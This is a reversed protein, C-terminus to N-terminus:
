QEQQRQINITSVSADIFLEIRESAQNYGTTQYENRGTTDEVQRWTSDLNLAGLINTSLHCGLKSPLIVNVTAVGAELRAQVAGKRLGGTLDLRATAGGIKVFLAQFNLNALGVADLTTAVGATLNANCSTPNQFELFDLTFSGASMELDLEKLPLESLRMSGTIVGLRLRVSTPRDYGGLYLVYRDAISEPIGLVPEETKVTVYLVGDVLQARYLPSAHYSRVRAEVALILDSDNVQRIRVDASSISVDLVVSDSPYGQVEVRWPYTVFQAEPPYFALTLLVTALLATIALITLSRRTEM